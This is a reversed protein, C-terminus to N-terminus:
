SKILDGYSSYANSYKAVACNTFFLAPTSVFIPAGAIILEMSKDGSLFYKKVRM